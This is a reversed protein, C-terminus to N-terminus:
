VNGNVGKFGYIHLPKLVGNNKASHEQHGHWGLQDGGDFVIGEDTFSFRRASTFAYAGELINVYDFMSAGYGKFCFSAAVSQDSSVCQVIVGDYESFNKPTVTQAPFSSTPSQNEWLLDIQVGGTAARALLSSFEEETGEFGGKVAHEYASLGKAGTALLKDGQYLAM